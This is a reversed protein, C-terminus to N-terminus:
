NSNKLFHELQLQLQLQLNCNTDTTPDTAVPQLWNRGSKTATLQQLVECLYENIV